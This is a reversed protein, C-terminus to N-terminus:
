NGNRKDGTIRLKLEKKRFDNLVKAPLKNIIKIVEDLTDEIVVEIGSEYAEFLEKKSTEDSILVWKWYGDLVKQKITKM